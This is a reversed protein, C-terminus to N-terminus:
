VIQSHVEPSLQRLMSLLGIRGFFSIIAVALLAAFLLVELLNRRARQARDAL